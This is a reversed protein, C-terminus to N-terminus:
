LHQFASDDTFINLTGCGPCRYGCLVVPVITKVLQKEVLSASSHGAGCRICVNTWVQVREPPALSGFCFAWGYVSARTAFLRDMLRFSYNMARLSTQTGGGLLMLKRPAKARRNARNMFSLSTCLTWTGRHRLGTEAEVLKALDRASTFPNVHGGGRALWRYMKDTITSADPVAVFLGGDPKVVRGIERLCAHLNEFHELSHNSIVLDFSRGALPLQAADAVVFNTGAEPRYELDIRVTVQGSQEGFSGGASGLDLVYANPPLQSFLENM